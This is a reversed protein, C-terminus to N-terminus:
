EKGMRIKVVDVKGNTDRRDYAAKAEGKLLIHITRVLDSAVTISHFSYTATLVLFIFYFDLLFNEGFVTLAIFNIFLLTSFVIALFQIVQVHKIYFFYYEGYEDITHMHNRIVPMTLIEYTKTIANWSLALIVGNFTLFTASVVLLINLNRKIDVDSVIFYLTGPVLGVAMSIVFKWPVIHMPHREISEKYDEFLRLFYEM